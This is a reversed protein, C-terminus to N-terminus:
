VLKNDQVWKRFERKVENFDRIYDQDLFGALAQPTLFSFLDSAQIELYNQGSLRYFYMQGKRYRWIEPVGLAAYIPFKSQSQHSIDVEIALDPPPDRDLDLGPNGIVSKVNTIYFCDDPETGKAKGEKRFTTSGFSVCGLNLEETLVGVLHGLLSKYYDHWDTPSMIELRGSDYSIRVHYGDGLAELLKEYERWTVDEFSLVGGSPLHEIADLLNILSPTTAIM